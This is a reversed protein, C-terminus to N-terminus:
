IGDIRERLALNQLYFHYDRHTPYLLMPADSDFKLEFQGPPVILTESVKNGAPSSFFTKQFSPGTIVLHSPATSVVRMQLEVTKPGNSYNTLHIRSVARSWRLDGEPPTELPYFGGDFTVELPVDLAEAMKKELTAGSWQLRLRELYPSLTYYAFRRDLSEVPKSDSLSKQIQKEIDPIGDAGRAYGQRDIYLGGFGALVATTLLAPAPM